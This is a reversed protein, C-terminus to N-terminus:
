YLSNHTDGALFRAFLVFVAFYAGLIYYFLVSRAGFGGLYCLFLPFNRGAASFIDVLLGLIPRDPSPFGMFPDLCPGFIGIIYFITELAFLPVQITPNFALCLIYRGFAYNYSATTGSFLFPLKKLFNILLLLNVGHSADSVGSV